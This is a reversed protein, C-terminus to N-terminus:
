TKERRGGVEEAESMSAAVARRMGREWRGCRTRERAELRRRLNLMWLFSTAKM